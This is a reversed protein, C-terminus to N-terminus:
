AAKVRGAFVQDLILGPLEAATGVPGAYATAGGTEALLRRVDSEGHTGRDAFFGVVVVQDTTREALAQGLTPAQDLFASGVAAFGGGRRLAQVHRLATAGSHPHRKTGHAMVLLTTQEPEWSRLHCSRRAAAALVDALRPNAGVPRCVLLRPPLGALARELTYGEAMLLPVLFIEQSRMGRAAEVLSPRGKLCGVRVEAFLGRREIAAAHSLGIGPGGDVGHCAILLGARNAAPRTAPAKPSVSRTTSM